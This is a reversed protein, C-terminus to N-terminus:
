GDPEHVAACYRRTRSCGYSNPRSSLPMEGVEDLLLTGGDAAEFLGPKGGARAGTFAGPEYGFLESEALERPLAACNIRLFSRARRSSLEHILRAVLEKGM